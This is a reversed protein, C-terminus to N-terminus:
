DYMCFEIQMVPKKTFSYYFMRVWKKILNDNRSLFSFNYLRTEVKNFGLKKFATEFENASYSVQHGDQEFSHGCQPCIRYTMPLRHPVAGVVKGGQKLLNKLNKVVEVLEDPRFHELVHNVVVIDYKKSVDNENMLDFVMFDVNTIKNELFEKKTIDINKPSIDAGCVRDFVLALMALTKGNGFGIEILDNKKIKREKLLDKIYYYTPDNKGAKGAYVERSESQYIDWIEPKNTKNIM